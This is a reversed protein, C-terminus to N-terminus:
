FFIIKLRRIERIKYDLLLWDPHSFEPQLRPSATPDCSSSPNNDHTNYNHSPSSTHPAIHGGGKGARNATHVQVVQVRILIKARHSSNFTNCIEM